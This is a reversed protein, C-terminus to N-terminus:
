CRSHSTVKLWVVLGSAQQLLAKSSLAEADTLSWTIESDWTGGGVIIYAANEDAACPACVVEPFGTSPLVVWQVQLLKEVHFIQLM